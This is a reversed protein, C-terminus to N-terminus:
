CSFSFKLKTADTRLLLECVSAKYVGVFLKKVGFILDIWIRLTDFIKNHSKAEEADTTIVFDFDKATLAM